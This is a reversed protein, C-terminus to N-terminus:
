ALRDAPDDRRRLARELLWSVAAAIALIPAVGFGALHLALYASGALVRLDGPDVPGTGSLVGTHERWGLLHAIALGSWLVAACLCWTRPRAATDVIPSM